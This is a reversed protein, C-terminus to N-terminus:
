AAIGVSIGAAAFVGQWRERDASTASPQDLTAVGCENAKGVGMRHYPMLWVRRLNPRAAIFGVLAALDATGDNLGPVLPCRLEVAAGNALATDLNRQILHNGVGTLQQHLTDDVAKCDFLWLDVLPLMRAFVAPPVHGSTEVCTHIGEAKAQALIAAAFDPQALPEGGSLTVGGGSAAYADRDRRVVAIVDDVTRTQGVMALAGSPCAEACSGCGDCASRDLRPGVGSLDHCAAPCAAECATCGVCDRTRLRLVPRMSQSEANHCWRCRLPCGQLFVTTRLGPGDHLSARHLDFVLGTISM